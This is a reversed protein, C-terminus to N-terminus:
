RLISVKCLYFYKNKYMYIISAMKIWIEVHRATSWAVILGEEEYM